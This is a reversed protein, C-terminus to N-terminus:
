SIENETQMKNFNIKRVDYDAVTIKMLRHSTIDM